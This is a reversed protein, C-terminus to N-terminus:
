LIVNLAHIIRGLIFDTQAIAANITPSVSMVDKTSMIAFM